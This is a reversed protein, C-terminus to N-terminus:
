ERRGLARGKGLRASRMPCSDRVTQIAPRSHQTAKAGVAPLFGMVLANGQAYQSGLKGTFHCRKVGLQRASDQREQKPGAKQGLLEVPPPPYTIQGRELHVQDDASQEKQGQGPLSGQPVQVQQLNGVSRGAAFRPLVRKLACGGPKLRPNGLRFRGSFTGRKLGRLCANGAFQALRQGGV